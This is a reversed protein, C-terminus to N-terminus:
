RPVSNPPMAAKQRHKRAEALRTREVAIREALDAPLNDLTLVPLIQGLYATFNHINDLFTLPRAPAREPDEDDDHRQVEEGAPHGLHPREGEEVVYGAPSSTCRWSSSSSGSRAGARRPSPV